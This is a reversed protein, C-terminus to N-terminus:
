NIKLNIKELGKLILRTFSNWSIDLYEFSKLAAMSSPM